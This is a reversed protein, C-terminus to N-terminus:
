PFSPIMSGLPLKIRDRPPPIIIASVLLPSTTSLVSPVSLSDIGIISSISVLHPRVILLLRFTGACILLTYVSSVIRVWTTCLEECGLTCDHRTTRGM